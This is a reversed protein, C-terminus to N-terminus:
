GGRYNLIMRKGMSNLAQLGHKKVLILLELDKELQFKNHLYNELRTKIEINRSNFGEFCHTEAELVLENKQSIYAKYDLVEKYSFILEDLERLYLFQNDNLLVRNDIRGLVSKISKLFSGCPCNDSDFAGLDNTRYRILPMAYRNLTTFVIEGYEGDLLNEKTQPNIIEFYLDAERLHYGKLAGCLVGGGYGMESMGYHIFVRCNYDNSLTNVISQPAYDSCLLVKEIKNKFIEENTRALHLIQTPLGVICNIDHSLIRSVTEGVDRLMGQIICSRVSLALAKKLLDGISAFSDGPLLVLVRDNKNTLCSMGHKFFDIIGEIDEGNFFVRKEDGSTGSTNITIIRQIDRQSVCLFSFCNNKIDEPYTFPIKKIDSMGKIEDAEIGRLRERYFSSRSKAYEITERIKKVQYEELAERNREINTKEVIWDELPTKEM